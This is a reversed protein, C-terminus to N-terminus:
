NLTQAELLVRSAALAQRAWEIQGVQAL